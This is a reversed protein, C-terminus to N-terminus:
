RQIRYLYILKASGRKFKTKNNNSSSQRCHANDAFVAEVRRPGLAIRNAPSTLSRESRLGRGSVPTAQM